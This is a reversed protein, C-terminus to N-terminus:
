AGKASGASVAQKWRHLDQQSLWAWLGLVAFANLAVFASAVRLPRWRGLADVQLALCASAYFLLQVGLAWWAVSSVTALVATCALLTLMCWPALLRLVKHSVYQWWIPNRWPLLISPMLVLLQFNGALTRVKRAREQAPQQAPQDYAVARDDFVVRGGDMCARMPIAVDDLVTRPDIPHLASRRIAYLAGTAGPVSHLKAEAKRIAKEYRWYADVGEGFAQLGERRFELEGSVVAVSPDSLTEVLASVAQANLPQRADTFVVVPEDTAAMADNLCASKGRREPQAMLTVALDPHQQAFTLVQQETGDTSGDSVVVVRLLRTPYDQALCTELKAKVRSAENHMVVVMAVRPQWGASPALPREWHRALWRVLWPYGVFTYVLM